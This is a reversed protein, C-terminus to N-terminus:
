KVRFISVDSNEFIKKIGFQEEDPNFNAMRPAYIYSIKNEKLEKKVMETEKMAFIDKQIQFRGKYDVGTIELNLTDAIFESKGTFGSVYPTSQYAFLPQPAGYKKHNKTNFYYSLIIGDPQNRLFNLGEVEGTPIRAPPRSPIFHHLTDWTTPLTIFFILGVLIWGFKFKKVLSALIAASFFNFVVLFYYFFQVTNFSAGIQTFLLPIVLSFTLFSLIFIRFSNIKKLRFIALLGIFRTGLNGFVFILFGIIEATFYKFYNGSDLGLIRANSLRVWNLRDVSDVMSHILWFPQFVLLGSNLSNNPLFILVSLFAIPVSIKLFSFHRKFIEYISVIFLAGLVLLGGYAKFEILSGWLIILPLVGVLHQQKQYIINSFIRLGALFILISIGFPPNILTSIGQQAWFLTEGGLSKDKLYSVIWGFSGGFYLFFLALNATLENRFWHKALIYATLGISVSILFPFLRFYLDVGPIHTFISTVGLMLDYFFHYNTLAIGAFSFNELPLGRKVSEILSLHWLSDHGHAGWFGLGYDYLLGNKITTLLWSLSGLSILFVTWFNPHGFRLKMFDNKVIALSIVPLVLLGWYFHLYGFVFAVLAFVSIGVPWSLIFKEPDTLNSKKLIAMGPLYFIFISFILFVLLNKVQVTLVQVLGDKLGFNYNGEIEKVNKFQDISQSIAVSIPLSSNDIKIDNPLLTITRDNGPQNKYNIQVGNDLRKISVSSISGEDIVWNDGFTVEDLNKTELMALNLNPCARNLCPEDLSENYLRLDRIVSGQSNYFWGVRYKTTQYWLVKGSSGLPDIAFIIQPPSVDAYLGQYFKGFDSMTLVLTGRSKRDAVEKIQNAFEGGFSDWSFDNELGVTVQGFDSYLNDLYINLLKRFYDTTLTHYKQNAYDNAQVSFTSDLVGNGYSNFPDRTAWQITVVGIKQNEGTAPVLANRKAPYFPTGFYQGWVQYNDTTYQDAVDMNAIIGYKERMYSLSGADIWWAGVSKPYFGFIKKFNEFSNDILKHREEVSYGTLFVSGASHWNANQHYVIGTNETWTPTVEMFLGVEQNKPLNKLLSVIGVDKMADPRILWTASLNNDSILTWEKNVNDVPKQDKMTWFDGGRVPNVITIFQNKAAFTPIPFLFFFLLVVLSILFRM